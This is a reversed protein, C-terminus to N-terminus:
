WSAAGDKGKVLGFEVVDIYAGDLFVADRFIGEQRFGLNRAIARMGMNTEATGTWIRHLNLCLFGHQVAMRCAATGYGKGWYATEGIVIALEASRNIWDIRQLAVNGIHQFVNQESTKAEIAWVIMNHSQNLHQRFEALEDDNLPFLGHSNYKTVLPDDMWRLYELCHTDGVTLPRIRVSDNEYIM